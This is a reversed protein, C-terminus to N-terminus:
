PGPVAVSVTCKQEKAAKKAADGCAKLAETNANVLRSAAALSSSAGPNDARMLDVGAQWRDLQGTALAALYGGGPAIVGLIPFLALGAVVGIGGTWILARKQAEQGRAEGVIAALRQREREVADAENRLRKAADGMIDAGARQMAAGYQEPTLKLAPHSEIAALRVEAGTLVKAIAGLSPGYDPAEMGKILAPLSEVARRMVTVEARLEAFARAAGGGDDQDDDAM